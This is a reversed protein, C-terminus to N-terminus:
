RSPQFGTFHPGRDYEKEVLEMRAQEYTAKLKEARNDDIDDATLWRIGRTLAVRWRDVISQMQRSEKNLQTPNMWYRLLLVYEDSSPAVDLELTQDFENYSSPRGLGPRSVYEDQYERMDEPLTQGAKNLILFTNGEVPIQPTTWPQDIVFVHVTSAPDESLYDTVSVIERMEGAAPGDIMVLWFGSLTYFPASGTFYDELDGENSVYLNTGGDEAVAFQGPILDSAEDDSAVTGTLGAEFLTLAIPRHFDEPFDYRRQGKTLLMVASNELSKFRTKDERTAFDWIDVFIEELWTKVARDMEEATPQRGAGRRFGERCIKDASTPVVRPQIMAPM